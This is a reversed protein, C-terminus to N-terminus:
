NLFVKQMNTTVGRILAGNDRVEQLDKNSKVMLNQIYTNHIPRFWDYRGQILEARLKM